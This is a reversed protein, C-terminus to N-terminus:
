HPTNARGAGGLLGTRLYLRILPLVVRAVLFRPPVLWAAATLTYLGISWVSPPDDALLTGGSLLLPILRVALVAAGILAAPSGIRHLEDRVQEVHERIADGRLPTPTERWFREELEVIVQGSLQVITVAYPANRPGSVFRLEGHRAMELWASVSRRLGRSSRSRPLSSRAPWPLRSAM